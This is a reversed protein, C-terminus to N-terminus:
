ENVLSHSWAKGERRKSFGLFFADEAEGESVDVQGSELAKM